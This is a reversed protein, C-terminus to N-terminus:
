EVEVRYYKEINNTIETIEELSDAKFLITGLSHTTNQYASVKDGDKYTCYVDLLNNKEFQEDFWLGSFSGSRTSLIM